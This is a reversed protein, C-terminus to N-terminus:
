ALPTDAIMSKMEKIIQRHLSDYRSSLQPFEQQQQVTADRRIADREQETSSDEWRTILKQGQEAIKLLQLVYELTLRDLSPFYLSSLVTLLDMKAHPATKVDLIGAAAHAWWERMHRHTVAALEGLEELKQRRLALSEREHWDQFGVAAKVQEAVLTTQRLQEKIDSLDAKIASTEGRKKAYAGLFAALAPGAVAIALLVYAGPSFKNAEEVIQRISELTVPAM